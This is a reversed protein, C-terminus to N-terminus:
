HTRKKRFGTQPMVALRMSVSIDVIATIKFNKLSRICNQINVMNLFTHEKSIKM